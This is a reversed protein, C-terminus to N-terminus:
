LLNLEKAKNIAGFRTQVSLKNFINTIYYEVTSPAYNLTSAIEKNTKGQSILNMIKLEKPTVQKMGALKIIQESLEKSIVIQGNHVSRIISPLESAKLSRTIFGFSNCKLLEKFLEKHYNEIMVIFKIDLSKVCKIKNVIDFKNNLSGYMDLLAIHPQKKSIKPIGEEFTSFINENSIYMDKENDLFYKIGYGFTEYQNIIFLNISELSIM